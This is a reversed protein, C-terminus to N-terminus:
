GLLFNEIQIVDTADTKYEAEVERRADVIWRRYEGDYHVALERDTWERNKMKMLRAKTGDCWATQWRNLLWSPVVETTPTPRLSVRVELGDASDASPATALTLTTESTFSYTSPDLTSSDQKVWLIRHPTAEEAPTLTYETQDEVLDITALTVQWIGTRACFDQFVLRLHQRVLAWPCGPLEPWLFERLDTLDDM